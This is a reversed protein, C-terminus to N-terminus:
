VAGSRNAALLANYGNDWSGDVMDFPSNIAAM